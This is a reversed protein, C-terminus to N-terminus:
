GGGWLVPIIFCIERCVTGGEGYGLIFGKASMKLHINEGIYLLAVSLPNMKFNCNFNVKAVQSRYKFFLMM